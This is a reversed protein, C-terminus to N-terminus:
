WSGRRSNGARGKDGLRKNVVMEVREDFAKAAIEGQRRAQAEDMGPEAQVVVTTNWTDGMNNSNAADPVMAYVGLRGDPMPRLPMIAESQGKEGFEAMPKYTPRDVIGGMLFSKIPMGNTFAMGYFASAAVTPGAGLGGVVPVGLARGGILMLFRNIGEQALANALNEAISLGIQKLSVDAGRALGVFLSGIRSTASNFEDFLIQATSRSRKAIDDLFNTGAGRFTRSQANLQREEIRQQEVAKDIADQRATVEARLANKRDESVDPGLRRLTEELEIERELLRLQRERERPQGVTGARIGTERRQRGTDRAMDEIQDRVGADAQARRLVDEAAFQREFRERVAAQREPTPNVLAALAKRVELEREIVRIAGERGTRELGFAQAKRVLADNELQQAQAADRLEATRQAEILTDEAAWRARTAREVAARANPSAKDLDALQKKLALERDIRRIADERFGRELNYAQARAGLAKTEDETTKALEKARDIQGKDGWDLMERRGREGARRLYQGVEGIYDRRNAEANAQARERQGELTGAFPNNLRGLNVEPIQVNALAGQYERISKAFDGGGPISEILGAITERAGQALNGIGSLLRNLGTIALNITKEIGEAVTNVTNIIAEAAAEPVYRANTELTDYVTKVIAITENAWSKYDELTAGTSTSISGLFESAARKVENFATATLSKVADVVDYAVGVTIERLTATHDEFVKVDKGLAYALGGAGAIAAGTGLTALGAIGAAGIGGGGAGLLLPAVDLGQLLAANTLTQASFGGAIGQQLFQSGQFFLQRRTNPDGITGYKPKAAQDGVNDITQAARAGSQIVDIHRQHITNMMAAYKGGSIVGQELARELIREERALQQASRLVPDYARALAGFQREVSLARREVTATVNETAQLTNNMRGAATNIADYGKAVTALAAEGTVDVSLESVVEAM